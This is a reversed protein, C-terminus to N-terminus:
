LSGATDRPIMLLRKQCAKRLLLLPLEAGKQLTNRVPLAQNRAGMGAICARFAPALQVAM